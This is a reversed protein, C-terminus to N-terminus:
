LRSRNWGNFGFHTIGTIIETLKNQDTTEGLPMRPLATMSSKSHKFVNGPYNITATKFGIQEAMKYERCHADELGGYPYAFHEINTNLRNSLEDKSQIMEALCISKPLLSLVPHNITHGGITILKHQSAVQLEEWNLMTASCLNNIDTESLKLSSTIIERQAKPPQKKIINSIQAYAKRREDDTKWSWTQKNINEELTLGANELVFKELLLWWLLGKGEAFKPCAYITVPINHKEFIPLGYTINDKYGDDITLAVFKKSQRKKGKVLEEVEDLSVFEYGKDKFFRIIFELHSPTIAMSSTLPLKKREQQPLVRHLMFIHGIGGYFPKSLIGNSKVFLGLIKQELWTM